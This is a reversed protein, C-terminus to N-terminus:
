AISPEFLARADCHLTLLLLLLMLRANLRARRRHSVHPRNKDTMEGVLVSVCFADQGYVTVCRFTDHRTHIEDFSTVQNRCIM